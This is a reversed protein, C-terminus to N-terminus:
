FILAFVIAWVISCFAIVPIATWLLPWRRVDPTEYDSHPVVADSRITRDMYVNGDLQKASINM